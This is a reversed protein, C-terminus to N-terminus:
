SRLAKAIRADQKRALALVDAPDVTGARGGGIVEAFVKGRCWAVTYHHVKM